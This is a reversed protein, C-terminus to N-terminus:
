LYNYIANLVTFLSELGKNQKKLLVFFHTSATAERSFNVNVGKNKEILKRCFNNNCLIQM